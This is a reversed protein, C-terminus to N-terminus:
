ENEVSLFHHVFVMLIKVLCLLFCSDNSFLIKCQHKNKHSTKDYFLDSSPPRGKLKLIIVDYVPFHIIVICMNGLIEYLETFLVQDTLLNYCFYKKLFAYM